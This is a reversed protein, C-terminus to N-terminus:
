VRHSPLLKVAPTVAELRDGDVNPALGSLSLDRVPNTKRISTTLTKRETEHVYRRVM